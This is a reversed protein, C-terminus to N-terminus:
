IIELIGYSESEGFREIEEKKLKLLNAIWNNSQNGCGLLIVKPPFGKVVSLNLYDEDNTVIIYNNEKAWDWIQRDTAPLSIEIKDVHKLSDFSNSLTKTLRWSLNADLLLNM